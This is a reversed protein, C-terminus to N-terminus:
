QYGRTLLSRAMGQYETSPHLRFGLADAVRDYVNFLYCVYMAERIAAQSLGAARLPGVDEASVAEPELTLKALLGLM